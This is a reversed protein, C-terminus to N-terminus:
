GRGEGTRRHAALAEAYRDRLAKFEEMLGVAEPSVPDAAELRREVARWQDLIAGLDPAPTSENITPLRAGAPTASAQEAKIEEERALSLLAEAAIRVDRALAPFAPDAPRIGRKLRERADVERIAIILGDSAGRLVDRIANPDDSM